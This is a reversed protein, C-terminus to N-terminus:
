VQLFNAPVSCTVNKGSGHCTAQRSLAPQQLIIHTKWLCPRRLLYIWIALFNKGIQIGERLTHTKWKIKM